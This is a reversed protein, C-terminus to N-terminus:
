VVGRVLVVETLLLDVDGQVARRGQEDIAALVRELRPHECPDPGGLLPADRRSRVPKAHNRDPAPRALGVSRRGPRLEVPRQRVRGSGTGPAAWDSTGPM